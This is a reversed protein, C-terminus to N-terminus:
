ASHIPLTLLVRTGNGPTSHLQWRAGIADARAAMNALGHGRGPAGERPVFGRGDDVVAFVVADASHEAHVTIRRAQGHRLGNSVAERLISVIEAAHQPPAMAVAEDDLKPEVLVGADTPLSALMDALAGALPQRNVEDPELDRLFARVERNLRRLEAVCRGLRADIEPGANLKKATGELTLSVAYLTQCINDHLERGLRIREALSRDLISRNVQLDEEARQRAGQERELADGREASIKAFHELGAAHAKLATWPWRSGNAEAARRSFVGLWIPVLVLVAALLVIAVLSRQHMLQIRQWARSDITARVNTGALGPAPLEVVIENGAPKRATGPDDTPVLEVTGGMIGSLRHLLAADWRGAEPPAIALVHELTARNEAIMAGRLRSTERFLWWQVTLAIGLFAVLLLLALALSRSLSSM